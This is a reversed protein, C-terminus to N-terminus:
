KALELLLADALSVAIDAYNENSTSSASNALIGQMAMAAFQERKTLGNENDYRAGEPIFPTPSAPNDGNNM